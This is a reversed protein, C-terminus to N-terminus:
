FLFPWYLMKERLAKKTISRSEAGPTIIIGFATIIM